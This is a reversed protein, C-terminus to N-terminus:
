RLTSCTRLSCAPGPTDYRRAADADWVDEHKDTKM